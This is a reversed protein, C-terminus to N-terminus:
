KYVDKRHSIRLIVVSDEIITFIIRYEGIRCKRLGAFKGTLLPYTDAKDPLDKEIKELIKYVQTKDIHKLDRYVSKKFVINFSLSKGSTKCLFWLIQLTM